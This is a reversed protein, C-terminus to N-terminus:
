FCNYVYKFLLLYINKIWKMIYYEDIVQQLKELLVTMELNAEESQQQKEVDILDEIKKVVEQLRPVHRFIPRFTQKDQDCIKAVDVASSFRQENFAKIDKANILEDPVDVSHSTNDELGIRKSRSNSKTTNGPSIGEWEDIQASIADLRAFHATQEEVSLSTTTTCTPPPDPIPPSRILHDSRLVKIPVRASLLDCISKSADCVRRAFLIYDPSSM